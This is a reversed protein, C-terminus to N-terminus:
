EYKLREQLSVIKIIRPDYKNWKGNRVMNGCTVCEGKKLAKLKPAWEKAGQADIDINKAVTLIGDDPPCFYLKQGAQQLRQIEDDSLQPKMFQTAYWASIGFKRGETLFKASPSEADHSLNQAEDLVIVFPHEEDGHKVCYNWIDWLLLETLLLQTPRDFGDLQMIYVMGDSDRITGWDFDEEVTFPEYDLFPQIKSLVTEGQKQSVTMLEDELHEFSMTDKYKKLGNKIAKYLASKQQGGFNYVTTFVNAVRTAVDVDSEPAERGGVKITQKAFPNVPIKDLYVIRQQVREGLEEIFIPDLKDPTFGSTYDFVVGSVGSRVMEMLLTQICYTKGCGSNGNILLHRNNLNKNGFEWYYKERTRLDEGILFRAERLPPVSPSGDKEAENDTTSEPSKKFNSASETQDNDTVSDGDVNKEQEAVFKELMKTFTEDSPTEVIYAALAKGRETLHFQAYALNELIDNKRFFTIVSDLVTEWKYHGNSEYVLKQDLPDIKFYTAFWELSMKRTHEKGDNLYVLFPVYVANVTPITDGTGAVPIVENDEQIDDDEEDYDDDFEDSLDCIENMSFSATREEPPVLMKQIFMQGCCHCLMDGLEIGEELLEGSLDSDIEWEEPVEANSDLWFAFIDGSWELEYGGDLIGYIKNRIVNYEATTNSMMIPSFIIARYLQNRWYRHMISENKPDWHHSMTQIGKELQMQAKTIHADNQVGMKCEIVKIQIQLKEDPDLNSVTKPIQIMMFDPRCNDKSLEDDEAFWHKYSDLSILVRVAYDDNEETVGLMQLTLINALFNHIEYDYPNLAKLVRSGDMYKSMKDICFEAAKQLREKSWNPFKDRMRKRLMDRIDKIIDERASVTVNLEGYNGEGTTFGIIRNEGAELMRRDIASDICVVWKCAEHCMEIIYNQIDTLELTMFTRYLGSVSNPNGVVYNAQTHSKAALFQFQSISVKRSKGHTAAITDPTFTMPFKAQAKGIREEGTKDFQVNTNELVNYNFCLDCNELLEALNDVDFKNAVTINRLFTNVKVNRGEDFYSDLWRKLYSASNKKSNMCIIKLNITAQMGEKEMLKAIAHIAAVIHQMDTPAIFAVNLGDVRAPFTRIYDMINRLVVNSIPTSHLMASADEDDTVIANGFAVGSILSDARDGGFYVGFYEWMSRCSLYGSVKQFIVDTGQTITSLQILNDMKAAQKDASLTGEMYQSLIEGFGDRIFIQKADIKELMVPHYAPLLVEAMNCNDIVNENSTMMFCNLLLGIKERQIDTFSVYNQHIEDMMVAFEDVVNRLEFLAAFLGHETLKLSFDRFYGCLVTFMGHVGSNVFYRGLEKLHPDFLLKTDLQLLQAYFEDESECHLYDQINHCVVMTPLSYSESGDNAFLSTRLYNFANLWPAYPSFVWNFEYNRSGKSGATKVTFLIKGPDGWKGTGRIRDMIQHRNAFDFPDISDEYDFTVCDDEYEIGASNIFQLIGGLFSCVNAFSDEKQEDKQGIKSDENCDPLNIRDVRVTFEMPYCGFKKYYESSAKLFMRTYAEMPEGTLTTPKDKKPPDDSIKTGLIQEIVAYDVKLLKQRNDNIQIGCMFDLVCQEFDQYSSFQATDEPFPNTEVINSEEAFIEFKTKIKKVASDTPIDDKREIFDIANTIIKADSLRGKSLKAIKPVYRTNIISPIGWTVNLTECIYDILEQATSFQMKQLGDIFDSLRILNTNVRKFLTRYLTHIATNVEKSGIANDSLVAQFWASYDSSLWNRLERPSIVFTTDRLSGTDDSAAETGMLLVLAGQELNPAENRWKTIAQELDVYSKEAYAKDSGPDLMPNDGKHLYNLAMQWNPNNEAAFMRYKEVTLKPVLIRIKSSHRLNEIVARYIIPNDFRELRVMNVDNTKVQRLIQETIVSILQRM